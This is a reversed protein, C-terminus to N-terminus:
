RWHKRLNIVQQQMPATNTDGTPETPERNMGVDPHQPTEFGRILRQDISDKWSKTAHRILPNEDSLPGIDSSCQLLLDISAVLPNSNDYAPRCLHAVLATTVANPFPLVITKSNCTSVKDRYISGFM